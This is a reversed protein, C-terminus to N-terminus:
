DKFTSCTTVRTFTNLHFAFKTSVYDASLICGDYRTIYLLPVQLNLGQCANTVPVAVSTLSHQVHCCVGFWCCAFQTATANDIVSGLLCM